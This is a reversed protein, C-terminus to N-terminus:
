TRCSLVKLSLLFCVFQFWFVKFASINRFINSFNPYLSYCPCTNLITPLLLGQTPKFLINLIQHTLVGLVLKLTPSPTHHFHVCVAPASPSLFLLVSVITDCRQIKTTTAAAAAATTTTTTTTTHCVTFSYANSPQM